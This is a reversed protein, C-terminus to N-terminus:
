AYVVRTGCIHDHLSRKEADFGAIIYGITFTLDTVINAFYRGAALGATVPKGDARIVKLGLVMKGPTAARTALFYVEYALKLGTSLLIILAISGFMLPLTAAMQEPSPNDGLSAGLGGMTLGFPIAIVGFVAGIIIGDILRAVFRIWFGGYRVAPGAPVPLPAGAGMGRATGYPQWGPLGDRWVLTDERVVGNRVLQELEAESVPGVQQGANAYYWTMTREKEGSERWRDTYVFVGAV